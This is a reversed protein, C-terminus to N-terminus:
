GMLKKDEVATVQRGKSSLTESHLVLVFFSCSVSSAIDKSPMWQISHIGVLSHEIVEQVDDDGKETGDKNVNVLSIPLGEATDHVVQGLVDNDNDSNDRDLNSGKGEKLSLAYMGNDIFHIFSAHNKGSAYGL